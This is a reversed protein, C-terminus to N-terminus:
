LQFRHVSNGLRKSLEAMSEAANTAQETRQKSGEALQAIQSVSSNILEAVTHQEEAARAIQKNM